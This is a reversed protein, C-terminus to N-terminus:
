RAMFPDNRYIPWECTAVYEGSLTTRGAAIVRYSSFSSAAEHDKVDFEVKADRYIDVAAKVLSLADTHTIGISGDNHRVTMEYRKIM